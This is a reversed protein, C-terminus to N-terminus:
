GGYGEPHWTRTGAYWSHIYSYELFIGAYRAYLYGRDKNMIDGRSIRDGGFGIKALEWRRWSGIEAVKVCSDSSSYELLESDGIEDWRASRPVTHSRSQIYTCAMCTPIHPPRAWDHLRSTRVSASPTNDPHWRMIEPENDAWPKWMPRRCVSNLLDSRKTHYTVDAYWIMIRPENDSWPKWTPSKGGM